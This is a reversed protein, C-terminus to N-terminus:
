GPELNLHRRFALQTPPRRGAHSCGFGHRDAWMTRIDRRKLRCVVSEVPAAVLLERQDPSMAMRELYKRRADSQATVKHTVTDYAVLEEEKDLSLYLRPRASDQYMNYATFQISRVHGTLRDVAITPSGDDLEELAIFIQDTTKDWSM